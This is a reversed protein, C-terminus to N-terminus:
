RRKILWGLVAGVGLAIVLAQEPRDAVFREVAERGSSLWERGIADLDLAAEGVASWPERSQSGESQVM